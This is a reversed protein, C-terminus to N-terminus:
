GPGLCLSPEFGMALWSPDQASCSRPWDRKTVWAMGLWGAELYRSSRAVKGIAMSAIAMSALWRWAVAEILM